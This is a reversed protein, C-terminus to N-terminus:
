AIRLFRALPSVRPVKLASYVLADRADVLQLDRETSGFGAHAPRNLVSARVKEKSLLHDLRM